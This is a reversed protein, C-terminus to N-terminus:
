IIIELFRFLHGYLSLFIQKIAQALADILLITGPALFEEITVRIYGSQLIVINDINDVVRLGM